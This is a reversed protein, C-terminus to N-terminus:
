QKRVIPLWLQYSPAPEVRVALEDAQVVTVNSIICAWTASDPPTNNCPFFTTSTRVLKAQVTTGAALGSPARLAFTVKAIRRPDSSNLTYSVNSVTYGSSIAVDNPLPAAARLAGSAYAVTALTLLGALLIALHLHRRLAFM